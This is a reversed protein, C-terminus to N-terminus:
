HGVQDPKHRSWVHQEHWDVDGHQTADVTIRRLYFHFDNDWMYAKGGLVQWAIHALDIGARGVYAKAMSTIEAADTSREEVATAARAVLAHSMELAMGADVLQHKVAQFSGIPRGFATRVKAHAVAHEFLQSMSGTTSAASLVLAIQAQHEVVDAGEGRPGLIATEPVQVDDFNVACLERTLDLSQWSHVSLGPSTARVLLQTVGDGDRVPVLLTDAQRASEILGASGRMEFGNEVATATVGPQHGWHGPLATPCWAVLRTGNQVSAALAAQRPDTALARAAVNLDILM